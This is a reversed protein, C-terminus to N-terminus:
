HSINLADYATLYDRFIALKQDALSRLVIPQTEPVSRDGIFDYVTRQDDYTYACESFPALCSQVGLNCVPLISTGMRTHHWDLLESEVM